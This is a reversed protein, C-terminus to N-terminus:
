HRSIHCKMLIHAMLVISSGSKSEARALGHFFSTSPMSSPSPWWPDLLPLTMSLYGHPGHLLTSSTLSALLIWLATSVIILRAGGWQQDILDSHRPMHMRQFTGQLIHTNLWYRFGSSKLTESFLGGPHLIWIVIGLKGGKLRFFYCLWKSLLVNDSAIAGRFKLNNWPLSQFICANKHGQNGGVCFAVSIRSAFCHFKGNPEM